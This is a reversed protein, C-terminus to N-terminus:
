YINRAQRDLLMQRLALAAFMAGLLLLAALLGGAMDIQVSRSLMDMNAWSIHWRALEKLRFVLEGAMVLVQVGCCVAIFLMARANRKTAILVDGKLRGCLRFFCGLMWAWAWASFAWLWEALGGRGVDLLGAVAVSLVPLLVVVCVVRLMLFIVTREKVLRKRECEQFPIEWAMLVKAGRLMLAAVAFGFPVCLLIIMAIMLWSVDMSNMPQLSELFGCFLLMAVLIGAVAACCNASRGLATCNRATCIPGKKMRGLMAFFCGIAVCGCVAVILVTALESFVWLIRWGTAHRAGTMIDFVKRLCAAGALWALLAGVCAALVTWIRLITLLVRLRPFARVM